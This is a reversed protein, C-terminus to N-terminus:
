SINTGLEMYMLLSIITALQPILNTFVFLNQYTVPYLSVM